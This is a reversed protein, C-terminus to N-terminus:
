EILKCKDAGFRVTVKLPKSTGAKVKTRQIVPHFCSERTIVLYEGDALGNFHFEGQDDTKTKQTSLTKLDVLLVAVGAFVAGTDDKAKGEIKGQRLEQGYLVSALLFTMLGSRLLNM